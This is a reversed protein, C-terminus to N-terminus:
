NLKTLWQFLWYKELLDVTNCAVRLILDHSSSIYYTVDQITIIVIVTHNYNNSYLVIVQILISNNIM